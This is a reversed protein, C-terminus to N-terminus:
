KTYNRSGKKEIDIFEQKTVKIGKTLSKIDKKIKKNLTIKDAFLIIKEEPFELELILGPLGSFEIPGFSFALEPCFWAIVPRSVIGGKHMLEEKFTTAKFCKYKGINKSNNFDIVWNISSVKSSVLFLDSKLTKQHLLTDKNINVYFKGKTGGAFDAMIRAFSNLKNDPEVSEMEEFFSENKSFKLLYSKYELALPYAKRVALMRPSIETSDKVYIKTSRKKYIVENTTTQALTIISIFLTIISIRIKMKNTKFLLVSFEM